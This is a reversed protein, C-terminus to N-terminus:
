PSIEFNNDTERWILTSAFYGSVLSVDHGFGGLITAPGGPDAALEYTFTNPGTILCPANVVNYGSPTVGSITFETMRGVPVNISGLASGTALGVNTLTGWSLATLQQSHESGIRPIAVVLTGDLQYVNVYWRQGFLNWTVTVDYTDGDLVASFKFPASPTPRFPVYTTM